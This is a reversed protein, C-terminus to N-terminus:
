FNLLDHNQIVAKNEAVDTVKHLQKLERLKPERTEEDTILFMRCLTIILTFYIICQRPFEWDRGFERNELLRGKDRPFHNWSARRSRSMESLVLAM